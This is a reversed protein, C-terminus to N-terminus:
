NRWATTKKRWKRFAEDQKFLALTKNLILNSIIALASDDVENTDWYAAITPGIGPPLIGLLALIRHVKDGISRDDAHDANSDTKCEDSKPPDWPGM